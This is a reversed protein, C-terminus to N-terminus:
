KGKTKDPFQQFGFSNGQNSYRCAYGQEPAKPHPFPQLENCRDGTILSRYSIVKNLGTTECTGDIQPHLKHSIQQRQFKNGHIVSNVYRDGSVEKTWNNQRDTTQSSRIHGNLMAQKMEATFGVSNTSNYSRKILHSSCGENADLTSYRKYLTAYLGSEFKKGPIELPGANLSSGQRHCEGTRLVEQCLLSSDLTNIPFSHTPQTTHPRGRKSGRAENINSPHNPVTQSYESNLEILGKYYTNREAQNVFQEKGEARVHQQVPTYGKSLGNQYQDAKGQDLIRGVNLLDVAKNYASKNLSDKAAERESQSIFSTMMHNMHALNSQITPQINEAVVTGHWHSSHVESSIECFGNRQTCFDSVNPRTIFCFNGPDDQTDKENQKKEQDEDGTKEMEFHIVRRCSKTKTAAHKDKIEVINPPPTAAEKINKKRVYKRKGSPTEKTIKPTVPKPSKKPKGEKIVKPRHKRRRPTKQEPTMNLDIVQDSGKEVEKMEGCPASIAASLTDTFDKLLEDHRKQTAEDLLIPVFNEQTEEYLSLSEDLPLNLLDTFKEGSFAMPTHQRRKQPRQEPTKNLDIELDRQKGSDKMGKFPTSNGACSSDVISQLLEDCHQHPAEDQFMRIFDDEGDKRFSSSEDRVLFSSASIHDYGLNELHSSVLSSHVSNTFVSMQNSQTTTAPNLNYNPQYIPLGDTVTECFVIETSTLLVNFTFCCSLFDVYSM